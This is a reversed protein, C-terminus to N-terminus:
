PQGGKPPESQFRQRFKVYIFAAGLLILGLVIFAIIRYFADLHALDHGFVKFIVLGFLALGAYRLGRVTRQLGTILLALAYVGWLVTIGGSRSAPAFHGLATNIELTLYFLLLALGGYGALLSIPRAVEHSRLRAFVIALLGLCLAFDMLRILVPGTTYAAGYLWTTANLNWGLMDVM